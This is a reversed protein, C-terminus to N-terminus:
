VEEGEEYLIRKRIEDMPIALTCVSGLIVHLQEIATDNADAFVVEKSILASKTHSLGCSILEAFLVNRMADDVTFKSHMGSKHSQYTCSLLNRASSSQYKSREMSMMKRMTIPTFYM